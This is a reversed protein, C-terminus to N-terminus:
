RAAAAGIIGGIALGLVLNATGRRKNRKALREAKRNWAAREEAVAAELVEFEEAAQELGANQAVLYERLAALEAAQTEILEVTDRGDAIPVVYAAESLEYGKQKLEIRGTGGWCGTGVILSVLTTLTLLVACLTIRRM